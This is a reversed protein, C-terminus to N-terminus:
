SIPGAAVALPMDLTMAGRGAFRELADSELRMISAATEPDALARKHASWTRIFRVIRAIDWQVRISLRPPEVREFPFGIEESRYGRWLLRNEPAWVPELLELMPDVFSRHLEADGEFWSYGWACFFAGPRALRRVEPWFRDHDFWHLAQAVAILDFRENGFNTREAAQASYVVNPAEFGRGIQEESIDTAEVLDFYQALAVAAQGNGTACDWAARHARCSEAIWAFLEAPYHPRDRAYFDSAISFSNRADM